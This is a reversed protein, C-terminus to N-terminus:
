KPCLAKEQYEKLLKLALRRNELDKNETALEITKNLCRLAESLVTSAAPNLNWKDILITGLGLHLSAKQPALVLAQRAYKISEEQYGIKAYTSSLNDLTISNEPNIDLAKELYELANNFQGIDTYLQGLNTYIADLGEGAIELGRNYYEIALEFSDLRKLAVGIRNMDRPARIMNVAIAKSANTAAVIGEALIQANAFVLEHKDHTFSVLHTGKSGLAKSILRYDNEALQCDLKLSRVITTQKAIATLLISIAREGQMNEVIKCNSLDLDRIHTQQIFKVLHIMANSSIVLQGGEVGFLNSATLTALRAKDLKVNPFCSALLDSVENKAPFAVEFDPIAPKVLPSSVPSIRPPTTNVPYTSGFLSSVPSDGSSKSSSSSTRTPSSPVLEPYVTPTVPSRPEITPVAPIAYSVSQPLIYSVLWSPMPQGDAVINESIYKKTPQDGHQFADKLAERVPICVEAVPHDKLEILMKLAHCRVSFDQEKSANTKCFSEKYFHNFKLFDLLGPLRIQKKPSDPDPITTPSGYLANLQVQLNSSERIMRGLALVGCVNMESFNEFEKKKAIIYQIAALSSPNNVDKSFEKLVTHVNFWSKTIQQDLKTVLTRMGTIFDGIQKNYLAGLSNGLDSFVKLIAELTTTDTQLRQIAQKAYRLAFALEPNKTTNLKDLRKNTLFMQQTLEESIAGFRGEHQHRSILEIALGSAIAYKTQIEPLKMEKILRDLQKILDLALDGIESASSRTMPDIELRKILLGFPDIGLRSLKNFSILTLTFLMKRAETIDRESAAVRYAELVQQDLEPDPKSNNFKDVLVLLNNNAQKDKAIAIKNAFRTEADESARYSQSLATTSLALPITALSSSSSQYPPPSSSSSVHYSGNGNVKSTPHLSM